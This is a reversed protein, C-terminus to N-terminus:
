NSAYWVRFCQIWHISRSMDGGTKHSFVPDTSRSYRNHGDAYYNPLLLSEVNMVNIQNDEIWNNMRELCHDIREYENNSFFGGKKILQPVFDNFRIM